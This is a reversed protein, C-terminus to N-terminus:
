LVPPRPPLGSIGRRRQFFSILVALLIFGALLFLFLLRGSRFVEEPMFSISSWWLRRWNDPEPGIRTFVRMLVLQAAALYALILQNRYLAPRSAVAAAALLMVAPFGIFNIRDLDAGGIVLFLLWLPIYVAVEPRRTLYRWAAPLHLLIVFLAAGYVNAFSYLTRRWHIFTLRLFEGGHGLYNFDPNAPTILLRPLIFLVLPLLSILATRRLAPLDVPGPRKRRSLYYAPILAFFYERTLAALCLALFFLGDNKKLLSRFALILFLYYASDTQYPYFFAFRVNVWSFLYFFAGLGAATRSGSEEELLIFLIFAALFIAAFNFIPWATEVPLPVLYLPLGPLIRWCYPATRAAASASFPEVAMARYFRADYGGLWVPTLLRLALLVILIAAAPLIKSKAPM